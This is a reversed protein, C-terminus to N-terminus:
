PSGPKGVEVEHAAPLQGYRSCGLWNEDNSRSLERTVLELQFREIVILGSHPLGEALNLQQAPVLTHDM